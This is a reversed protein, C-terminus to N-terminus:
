PQGGRIRMAIGRVVLNGHRAHDSIFPDDDRFIEAIKAARETAADQLARAEASVLPDLAIQQEYCILRNLSEKLTEDSRPLMECCVMADEVAQKWPLLMATAADWATKMCRITDDDLNGGCSILWAEFEADV